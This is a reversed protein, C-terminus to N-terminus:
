LQFSQLVQLQWPATGRFSAEVSVWVNGSGWHWATPLAPVLPIRGYSWAMEPLEREAAALDGRVLQLYSNKGSYAIVTFCTIYLLSLFPFTVFRDLLFLASMKSNIATLDPWLKSDPKQLKFRVPLSDDPVIKFNKRELKKEKIHRSTSSFSSSSCSAWETVGCPSITNLGLLWHQRRTLFVRHAADPTGATTSPGAAGQYRQKVLPVLAPQWNMCLM